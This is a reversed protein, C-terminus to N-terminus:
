YTSPSPQGFLQNVNKWLMKCFFEVKQGVWYNIVISRSSSSSSLWQLQTQSQAVGYIAAWWAGGDRSNELCSYQLPNGNGEGISAHLSLWRLLTCSQAVRRVAAWLSRQGCSEGPFFVPTPHWKRRWNLM